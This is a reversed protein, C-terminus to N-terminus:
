ICVVGRSYKNINGKFLAEDALHMAVHVFNVNAHGQM